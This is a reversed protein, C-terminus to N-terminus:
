AIPGRLCLFLNLRNIHFGGFCKVGSCTMILRLRMSVASSWWLSSQMCFHVAVALISSLKLLTGLVIIEVDVLCSRASM